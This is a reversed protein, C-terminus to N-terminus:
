NPLGYARPGIGRMSRGPYSFTSRAAATATDNSYDIRFITTYYGFSPANVQAQVVYGYSADGTGAGKYSTGALPGKPSSTATDDAFDIRQVDSRDPSFGTNRGGVIYGYNSNGIGFNHSVAAVLNGKTQMTATDNAYELRDVVSKNVWGGCFYGYSQNGVASRSNSTITSNTKASAQATDNSYELRDVHTHNGGQWYGYSQNGISVAANAGQGPSPALTFAARFTSKDVSTETDNAFTMREISSLYIPGPNSGGGSYGHTSNGISSHGSRGTHMNGKLVTTATDNSFDIRNIESTWPNNPSTANNLGGAYYGYAPGPAALPTPNPFGGGGGSGSSGFAMLYVDYQSNYPAGSAIGPDTQKGRSITQSQSNSHWDNGWYSWFTQYPSNGRWSDSKGCGQSLDGSYACLVQTDNDSDRNVGWICFAHPQTTTSPSPSLPAPAAPGRALWTSSTATLTGSKATGAVFDTCSDTEFLSDGPGGAWSPNNLNYQDLRYLIEYMTESGTGSGVLDYVLYNTHSTMDTMNGTGDVLAMKTIGTTTFFGNYLGSGDGFSTRGDAGTNAASITKWATNGTTGWKSTGGGEGSSGKSANSHMLISWSGSPPAPAYSPGIVKNPFGYAQASVGRQSYYTSGFTTRASAIASDNSYDIRHITSTPGTDGGGAYGFDPSGTAGADNTGASLYGRVSVATTDNSYDLRDVWSSNNSPISPGDGGIFYGFSANGTATLLQRAISIPGKVTATATDNSYDIRNMTTFYASGNTGGGYYGFSLNGTVGQKKVVFSLNGKPSATATDNGYDIRDVYSTASGHPVGGGFYAYSANGTGGLYYRAYSIPGRPSTTSTDNSYDVRDVSSKEHPGAPWVYGGAWYGHTKNSASAHNSRGSSLPGKAVCVNTDNSYDLRDIRTKTYGPNGGHFYGFAPGIDSAAVQAANDIFRNGLASRNLTPFGNIRSSAGSVRSRAVTLPGRISASDTDNAYDFRYVRSQTTAGYVGGFGYGSSPNGAAGAFWNNSPSKNVAAATDNSFDIKDRRPNLTGGSAYGFDSNSTGRHRRRDASLNGRPSATATDNAFDIRDVSSFNSPGPLGLGGMFYGYNMNGMAALESRNQTLAGKTSMTASDTAYDLRGVSSYSGGPTGGGGFYGYNLNGTAALYRHERIWNGVAVGTATDNSYDLRSTSSIYGIQAGGTLYAYSTNGTAAGGYTTFALPGKPAAASTDDAFDIRDVTSAAGPGPDGGMAYAFDTGLSVFKFVDFINSTEGSVQLDYFEELGFIGRKDSM